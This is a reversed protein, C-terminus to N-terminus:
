DGRKAGAPLALKSSANSVLEEDDSSMELEFDELSVKALDALQEDGAARPRDLTPASAFM